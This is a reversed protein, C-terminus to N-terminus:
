FRVLFTSTLKDHLTQGRRDFLAVWFGGLFIAFSIASFVARVASRAPSPPLGSRDVLRIGALLRGFTCGNLLVGFAASYALSIVAALILGPIIVPQMAEARAVWRDIGSLRSASTSAGAITSAAWLYLAVIAAIGIGDILFALLRRWLPAVHAEIEIPSAATMPAAEIGDPAATRPEPSARQRLSAGTPAPTQRPSAVPLPSRNALARVTPADTRANQARPRAAPIPVPPPLPSAVVAASSRQATSGSRRLPQSALPAIPLAGPGRLNKQLLAPTTAAGQRKGACHLCEGSAALPAGCKICKSM